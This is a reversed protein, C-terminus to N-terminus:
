VIISSLNRPNRQKKKYVNQRTVKIAFECNLLRIKDKLIEVETAKSYTTSIGSFASHRRQGFAPAFQRRNEDIFSM